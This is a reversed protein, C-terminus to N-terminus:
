RTLVVCGALSAEVSPACLCAVPGVLVCAEEPVECLFDLGGGGLWGEAASKKWGRSLRM